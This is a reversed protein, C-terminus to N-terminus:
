HKRAFCAEAAEAPTLSAHFYGYLREVTAADPHYPPRIFDRAIAADYWACTWADLDHENERPLKSEDFM